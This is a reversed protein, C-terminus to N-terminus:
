CQQKGIDCTICQKIPSYFDHVWIQCVAIMETERLNPIMLNGSQLVNELVECSIM